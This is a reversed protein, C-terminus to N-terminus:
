SWFTFTRSAISSSSYTRPFFLGYQINQLRSQTAATRNPILTAFVIKLKLMNQFLLGTANRESAQADRKWLLVLLKVAYSLKTLYEYVHETACPWISIFAILNASACYREGFRFIEPDRFNVFSGDGQARLWGKESSITSFDDYFSPSLSRGFIGEIGYAKASRLFVPQLLRWIPSLQIRIELKQRNRRRKPTEPELHSSFPTRNSPGLIDNGIGQRWKLLTSESPKGLTEGIKHSSHLPLQRVLQRCYNSSYQDVVPSRVVEYSSVSFVWLVKFIVLSQSLNSTSIRQEKFWIGSAKVQHQMVLSYTKSSNSERMDRSSM